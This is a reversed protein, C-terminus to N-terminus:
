LEKECKKNKQKTYSLRLYKPKTEAHLLDEIRQRKKEQESM